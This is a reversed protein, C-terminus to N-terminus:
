SGRAGRRCPGTRGPAPWRRVAAAVHRRDVPPGLRRHHRDRRGVAERLAEVLPEAGEPREAPGLGVHGSLSSRISSFVNMSSRNRAKSSRACTIRWSISEFFNSRTSRRAPTSRGRAACTRASSRGSAGSTRRPPRRSTRRSSRARRCAAAVLQDALDQLPDLRARQDEDERVVPEVRELVAHVQVRPEHLVAEDGALPLGSASLFRFSM